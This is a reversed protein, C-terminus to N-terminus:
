EPRPKEGGPRPGKGRDRRRDRDRNRDRDGGRRRHRERMQQRMKEMQEKSLIGEVAKQRAKFAAMKEERTKAAKMATMFDEHIKKLSAQQEDKLDLGAFPNPRQGGGDGAQKMKELAKRQADTLIGMIEKAAGASLKAKAEPGEAEEMAKKLGTMIKKVDARQDETLNLRRLAGLLQRLGDPSPRRRDQQPNLLPMIKKLQEATLVDGLAKGLGERVEKMGAMLKRQKEGLAKMKERDEAKRAAAFAERLAKMEDAHEAHWNKMAQGQTRLVQEIQVLKEDSLDLAKDIRALLAEMRDKGRPRQPREDVALVTGVSVAVLLLTMVLTRKLM